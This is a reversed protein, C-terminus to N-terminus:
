RLRTEQKEDVVATVGINGQMGENRFNDRRYADRNRSGGDEPHAFIQSALM